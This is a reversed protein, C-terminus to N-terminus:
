SDGTAIRYSLHMLNSYLIKVFLSMGEIVTGGFQTKFIFTLGALLVAIVFLQHSNYDVPIQCAVPLCTPAAGIYAAVFSSGIFIIRLLRFLTRYDEAVGANSLALTYERADTGFSTIRLDM